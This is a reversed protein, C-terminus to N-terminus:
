RFYIQLHKGGSVHGEPHFQGGVLARIAHDQLDRFIARGNPFVTTIAETTNAFVVHVAWLITYRRRRCRATECDSHDILAWVAKVDVILVIVEGIARDPRTAAGM